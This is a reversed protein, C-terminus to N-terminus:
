SAARAAEVGSAVTSIRAVQVTLRDLMAELHGRSGQCLATDVADPGGVQWRDAYHVLRGSAQLDELVRDRLSGLVSVVARLLTSEDIPKPLLAADPARRHLEATWDGHDASLVAIPLARLRLASAPAARPGYLGRLGKVMQIGGGGAPRDKDQILLDVPEAGHAQRLIHGMAQHNDAAEEVHLAADELFSRLRRRVLRSDDLVLVHLPAAASLPPATIM